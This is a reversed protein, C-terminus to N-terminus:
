FPSRRMDLELETIYVDGEHYSKLVRAGRVLGKVQSKILDDQLRAGDVNNEASVLVGYVQEAMEKYAELKSVKIANIMKLDFSDGKQSAIPAYGVSTVIYQHSDNVASEVEPDQSYLNACSSLIISFLLVGWIKFYFRFPM